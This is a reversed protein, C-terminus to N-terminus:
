ALLDKTIKDLYDEDEYKIAKFIKKTDLKDGYENIADVLIMADDIKQEDIFHEEVKEKSESSTQVNYGYKYSYKVETGVSLIKARIHLIGDMDYKFYVRVTEKGKSQQPIENIEFNCVHYNQSARDSNGQFIELMMSNQNDLDTKYEEYYEEGYPFNKKIIPTESKTITIEDSKYLFLFLV